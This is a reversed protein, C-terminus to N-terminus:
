GERRRLPRQRDGHAAVLRDRLLRTPPHPRQVARLRPHQFRAARSRRSSRDGRGWTTPSDWRAPAAPRPWGSRPGRAARRAPMPGDLSQLLAAFKVSDWLSSCANASLNDTCLAVNVGAQPLRPVPAVGSLLKLHCIPNHAVTSGAESLVTVEDRSLWVAHMATLRPSLVGLDRLHAVMSRCYLERAAVAQVKTELIHSHLPRREGESAAAFACLPQSRIRLAREGLVPNFIPSACLIWMELPLDEWMGRLFWSCARLRM